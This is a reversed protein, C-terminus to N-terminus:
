VLVLDKARVAATVVKGQGIVVRDGTIRIVDYTQGYVFSALTRGDYDKAGPKVRVKSGKKIAPKAPAPAPKAPAPATGGTVIIADFGAKKLRAVMAEANAKQTYAGVQVRYLIGDPAPSKSPATKKKKLGLAKAIGVATLRGLEKLVTSKKLLAADTPNTVFLYEILVAPCAPVRTIYHDYRKKGRNPVGLSKLHPCVADHIADRYDLTASLLPGSNAFTEFGRVSSASYANNHQSVFIAAGKGMAARTSLAVYVDKTRTMKVTCDYDKLADRTALSITLNLDKEKLGNGVAGPDNGGHGPDLVVLKSVTAAVKKLEAGAASRSV